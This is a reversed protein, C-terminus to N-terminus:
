AQEREPREYLRSGGAWVGGAPALAGLGPAASTERRCRGMLKGGHVSPKKGNGAGARALGIPGPRLRRGPLLVFNCGQDLWCRKGSEERHEIQDGDRSM